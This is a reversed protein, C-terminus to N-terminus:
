LWMSRHGVACFDPDATRWRQLFRSAVPSGTSRRGITLSARHRIRDWGAGFLVWLQALCRVRRGQGTGYGAGFMGLVDLFLFQFFMTFEFLAAQSSRLPLNAAGIRSCRRRTPTSHRALPRCNRTRWQRAGIMERIGFGGGINQASHLVIIIGGTITLNRAKVNRLPFLLLGVVGYGYLIDGSWHPAGAGPRLRDAV